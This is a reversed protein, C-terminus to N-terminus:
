CIKCLATHAERLFHPGYLIEKSLWNGSPIKWPPPDPDETERRSRGKDEYRSVPCPSGINMFSCVIFIDDRQRHIPLLKVVERPVIVVPAVM